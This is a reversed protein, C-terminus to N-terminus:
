QIACNKHLSAAGILPKTCMYSGGGMLILVVEQTDWFTCVESCMGSQLMKEFCFMLILVLGLHSQTSNLCVLRSQRFIERQVKLRSVRVLRSLILAFM